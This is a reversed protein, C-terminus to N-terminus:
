PSHVDRLGIPPLAGQANRGQLVLDNLLGHHGEEVLDVLLVEQTEGVPKPRSTARMLRQIRERHGQRSPTHVKHQITVYPAKEVIQRLLPEYPENLMAHGIRAEETQDLFPQLRPDTLFALPQLSRQPHRLPRHGRRGCHPLSESQPSTSLSGPEVRFVVNVAEAGIEVRKVLTRILERRGTWDAQELGATVRQAFDELYTVVLRLEQQRSEEDALARLAQEVKQLKEKSREVRPQFEQKDILGEAYGDILRSLGQKLKAAQAELVIRNEPRHPEQLRRQYEQAVRSPDQLLACVQQWVAQELLDTRVQRNSCVREGGFRYADSGVCRYYAYDRPHGKRSSPSIANGYYAYGCQQCCVLGQLLYRAGRRGQRAHRRNEALQETVAAFLSEEVLAPVPISIWQQPDVDRPLTPHRPQSLKGRLPRLLQGQRPVAHTKGFAAQGCYAPNKLIGWVTTRDWYSKGKPSPEGAQQLRRCVTGISARERGIWTYIQQVVRAQEPIPEYRAQGGGESVSVYRYGYPAGSLVSPSGAQAAHRKGRRSRELIKAREYEAVMGQVQLLLDDEPSQGLARNLFIVEVGARQWEDVLLVQYAYKRALRDPSHVYVCDLVGTAILDRLRELAPRLLTAGSYGEDMFEHEPLLMLGDELIRERLAAVQSRITQATTQQESSVRAYFAVERTKM